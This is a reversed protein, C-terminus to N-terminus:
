LELKFTFKFSFNEVFTPLHYAGYRYAFSMGFGWLIKNIEFGAESFGHELTQFNINRHVDPKEFDGIVHRSLLSLEPKIKETIRIPRFNHKIHLELQRDSYFENFYMTEFALNGAISFRGLIEPKNPNNPSAHFAHTLPLEGFGQYGQLTFATSSQDLRNIVYESKLGIRTFNFDGGLFGAISQSIEGTVQPYRNEVLVYNEPTSLFRSFPRWLFGLKVESITYDRYLNGDNLFAYEGTQSIDGRSLMVESNLKPLLRHEISTKITKHRYFNSINAFRPQLIQFESIGEIFNFSAIEQIEKTYNLHFRTASRENLNVATGISYKFERDKFGYALFGQFMFNESFEGSTRGGLGIRLGEYENYNIVQSLDLDVYGLPYYGKTIAENLRIKREIDRSEIIKAIKFVAMQDDVTFEEQRNEKWFSLPKQTAEDTVYIAPLSKKIEVPANLKIDYFTTSSSLYLNEEIEDAGTVLDLLSGKSQVTGVSISGGFISIDKGGEGPKITLTQSSPFWIEEEEYYEYYHNVELDAAGLLQAKAQQIALSVTDLYLIGELGAVARARKPKFYIIYAPRSIETLTDLIRYSYNQLADDGLPGAYDTEFVHYDKKYLSFAQVKLALVDYVPHEFGATQVGRVVESQFDPQEFYHTSVKESLYSRGENIITEIEMNSSDTVAEIKQGEPTENDILFKNYSRYGYSKLKKEPDNQARAAIAKKIIEEAPNRGSFLKVAELNEEKPLLQILLNNEESSFSIKKAEFGLYSVTLSNNESNSVIRFSGDINTLTSNEESLKVSAYPLPEGSESNVVKGSLVTQASINLSFSIILFLLFSRM